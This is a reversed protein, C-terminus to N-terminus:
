TRVQLMACICMVSQLASLSRRIAHDAQQVRGYMLSAHWTPINRLVCGFAIHHAVELSQWYEDPNFYTQVLLAQIVRVSACLALVALM